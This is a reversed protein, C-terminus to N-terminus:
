NTDTAIRSSRILSYRTASESNFAKHSAISGSSAGAPPDCSGLAGGRPRGNSFSTLYRWPGDRDAGDCGRRAAAIGCQQDPFDMTM